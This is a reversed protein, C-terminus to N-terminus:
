GVCCTRCSSWSTPSTSSGRSCHRSAVLLGAAPAVLNAARNANQKIQMIDAFSPDGAPLADAPPRLVRDDRDAPQQFRARRRGRAPRAQMKQSQAFQVELNKQETADIFHLM